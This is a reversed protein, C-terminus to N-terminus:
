GGSADTNDAAACVARGGRWYLAGVLGRLTAKRMNYLDVEAADVAAQAATLMRLARESAVVTRHLWSPYSNVM